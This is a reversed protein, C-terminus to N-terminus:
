FTRQRERSISFGHRSATSTCTMGTVRSTCAFPGLRITRGYALVFREGALDDYGSVDYRQVIGLTRVSFGGGIPM